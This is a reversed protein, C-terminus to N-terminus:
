RDGINLTELNLGAVSRLLLSVLETQRSTETKEFISQLHWKVTNRTVGRSAAFEDLSMGQALEYALAAEAPTLEYTSVFLRAANVSKNEPDFVFVATSVGELQNAAKGHVPTVLLSYPRKGSPRPLRILGGKRASIPPLRSKEAGVMDSLARQAARDALVLGGREIAIGDDDEFMRRAARNTFSVENDAQFLVLGFDLLDLVSNSKAVALELDNMRNQLNIARWLHNNLVALRSLIEHDVEEQGPHRVFRYVLRRGTLTEGLLTTGDSHLGWPASTKKYLGSAFHEEDSVFTRRLIPTRERIAPLSKLFSHTRADWRQEVTAAISGEPINCAAVHEFVFPGQTIELLNIGTGSAARSLAEIARQHDFRDGICGYITEIASLIDDM